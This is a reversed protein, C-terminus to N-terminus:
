KEDEYVDLALGPGGRVEVARFNIGAIMLRLPRSTRRRERERERERDTQRARVCGCVCVRHSRSSSLSHSAVGSFGPNLYDGLRILLMRSIRIAELSRLALDERSIEQAVTRSLFFFPSFFNGRGV